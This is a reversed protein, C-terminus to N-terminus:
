EGLQTTRVNDQIDCLRSETRGMGKGKKPFSSAGDYCVNRSLFEFDDDYTKHRWRRTEGELAAEAAASDTLQIWSLQSATYSQFDTQDPLCTLHSYGQDSQVLKAVTKSKAKTVAFQYIENAQIPVIAGPESNIKRLFEEPVGLRQVVSLPMPTEDECNSVCRVLRLRHTMRTANHEVQERAGVDHHIILSALRRGYRKLEEIGCKVYNAAATLSAATNGQMYWQWLRGM